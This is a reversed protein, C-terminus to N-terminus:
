KAAPRRRKPARGTPASDDEAGAASELLLAVLHWVTGLSLEISVLGSRGEFGLQVRRRPLLKITATTVTLRKEQGGPQLALTAAGLPEITEKSNEIM